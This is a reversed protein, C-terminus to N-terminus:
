EHLEITGTLLAWVDEKQQGTWSGTLLLGWNLLTSRLRLSSITSCVWAVTLNIRDVLLEIWTLLWAPTHFSLKIQHRVSFCTHIESWHSPPHLMWFSSCSVKCLSAVKCFSLVMRLAALHWDKIEFFFILRKQVHHRSRHARGQFWCAVMSTIPILSCVSCIAPSALSCCHKIGRQHSLVSCVIM